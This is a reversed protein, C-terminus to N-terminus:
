PVFAGVPVHGIHLLDDRMFLLPSQQQVFVGVPVHRIHLRPVERSRRRRVGSTKESPPMVM